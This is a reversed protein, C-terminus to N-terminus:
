VLSKLEMLATYKEEVKPLLGREDVRLKGDQGSRVNDQTEKKTGYIQSGDWWPTEHNIYTDPHEGADKAHNPDIKTRKVHMPRQDHPWDDDADIQVEFPQQQNDTEHSFWDHIMFQIWAAALVNLTTAPQFQERTMLERAVM